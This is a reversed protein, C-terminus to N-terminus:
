TGESFVTLICTSVKDLNKPGQTTAVFGDEPALNKLLVWREIVCALLSLRLEAM